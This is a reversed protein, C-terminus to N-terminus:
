LSVKLFLKSIVPTLTIGRYNNLSCLDDYKDKVLLVNTESCFSTACFQSYGNRPVFCVSSLDSEPSRLCIYDPLRFLHGRERLNDVSRLLSLLHHFCNKFATHMASPERM